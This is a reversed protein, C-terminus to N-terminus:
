VFLKAFDIGPLYWSSQPTEHRCTGELLLPTQTRALSPSPVHIRVLAKIYGYSSGCLAPGTFPRESTVRPHDFM